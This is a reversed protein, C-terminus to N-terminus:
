TGQGIGVSFAPVGAEVDLIETRCSVPDSRVGIRNLLRDVSGSFLVSGYPERGTDVLTMIQFNWGVYGQQGVRYPYEPVLLNTRYKLQVVRRCVAEQIDCRSESDMDVPQNKTSDRIGFFRNVADIEVIRFGPAGLFIGDHYIVRLYHEKGPM